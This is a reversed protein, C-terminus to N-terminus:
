KEERLMIPFGKVPALDQFMHDWKWRESPNSAQLWTKAALPKPFTVAPIAAFAPTGGMAAAIAARVAGADKYHTAIGAATAVDALVRWDERADGPPAMVRATAQLMGRDNTYTAEKEVWAAGPLVIDAAAALPTMVVGQVILLPVKGATRADIVWQVDGVSGDPGPDVVYLAKVAGSEVDARLASVDCAADAGGPVRFGMARAGAVNPADVPPVTFKTGPPQVKASSRWSVAVASDLSSGPAQSVLQRVLFLEEHSAHASV